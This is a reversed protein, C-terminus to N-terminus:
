KSINWEQKPILHNFISFLSSFLSRFLPLFQQGYGAKKGERELYRDCAM